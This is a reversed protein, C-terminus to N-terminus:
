HRLSQLESTHEESRSSLSPRSPIRTARQSSDGSSFPPTKISACPFGVATSAAGVSEPLTFVAVPTYRVLSPARPDEAQPVRPRQHARVPWVLLLGTVIAM